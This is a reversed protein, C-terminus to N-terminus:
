NICLDKQRSWSHRVGDRLGANSGEAIPLKDVKADSCRMAKHKWKRTYRASRNLIRKLKNILSCAIRMAQRWELANAAFHLLLKHRSQKGCLTHTHTHLLFTAIPLHLAVIAQQCLTRCILANHLKQQQKQFSQFRKHFFILLM